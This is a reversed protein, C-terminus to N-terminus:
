QRTPDYYIVRGPMGLQEQYTRIQREGAIRGSPTNPKMEIIRGNPTVIDPKYIKQNAGIMRPESIWGPKAAIRESLERHVQRGKATSATEGKTPMKASAAGQTQVMSGRPGLKWGGSSWMKDYMLAEHRTMLGGKVLAEIDAPGPVGRALNLRALELANEEAIDSWVDGAVKTCGSCKDNTGNTANNNQGSTNANGSSGQGGRWGKEGGPFKNPDEYSHGSPDSGNVPDNGAYAYRNIDVGPLDPDWSDPTLFRALLPDHYRANLYQLGTEPDFRENIYGKGQLAV